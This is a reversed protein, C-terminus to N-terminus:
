LPKMTKRTTHRKSWEAKAHFMWYEAAPRRAKSNNGASRRIPSEHIFAADFPLDLPKEFAAM